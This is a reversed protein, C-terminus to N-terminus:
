LVKIKYRTKKTKTKAPHRTCNPYYFRVMTQQFKVLASDNNYVDAVLNRFCVENEKDANFQKYYWSNIRKYYLYKLLSLLFPWKTRNLIEISSMLKLNQCIHCIFSFSCQNRWLIGPLASKYVNFCDFPHLQVDYPRTIPRWRALTRKGLFWRIVGSIWQGNIM